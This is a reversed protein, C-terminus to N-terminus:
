ICQNVERAEPSDSNAYRLEIERHAGRDSIVVFYPNRVAKAGLNSFTGGGHERPVFWWASSSKDQAKAFCDAFQATSKATVVPAPDNTKPSPAGAIAAVSLLTVIGVVKM